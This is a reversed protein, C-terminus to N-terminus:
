CPNSPPESALAGLQSNLDLTAPQIGSWIQLKEAVSQLFILWAGETLTISGLPVFASEELHCGILPSGKDLGLM